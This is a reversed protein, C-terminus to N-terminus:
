EVGAAQMAQRLAKRAAAVASRIAEDGIVCDPWVKDRLAALTLTNGQAESLARLVQLPKGSLPVRRRRYVFAGPLFTLAAGGSPPSSPPAPTRGEVVQQPPADTNGEAPSPDPSPLTGSSSGATAGAKSREPGAPSAEVAAIQPRHRRLLELDHALDE